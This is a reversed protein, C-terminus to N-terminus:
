KLSIQILTALLFHFCFSVEAKLERFESFPFSREEGQNVLVIKVEKSM